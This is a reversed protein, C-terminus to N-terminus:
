EKVWAFMLKAQKSIDYSGDRLQAIECAIRLCELKTEVDSELKVDYTDTM